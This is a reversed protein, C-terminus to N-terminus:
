RTARTEEREKAAVREARKSREDLAARSRCSVDGSRRESVIVIVRKSSISARTLGMVTCVTHTQERRNAYDRGRESISRPFLSRDAHRMRSTKVRNTVPRSETLDSSFCVNVWPYQATAYSEQIKTARTSPARCGVGRSVPQLHLYTLYSRLKQIRTLSTESRLKGRIQILSWPPKFYCRELERIFNIRSEFLDRTDKISFEICRDTHSRIFRERHWVRFASPYLSFSISPLLFFFIDIRLERSFSYNWPKVPTPLFRPFPFLRIRDDGRREEKKEEKM